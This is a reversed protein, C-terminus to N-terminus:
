RAARERKATGHAARRGAVRHRARERELRRDAFYWLRIPFEDGGEERQERQVPVFLGSSLRDAYTESFFHLPVGHPAPDYTDPAVRRGRGFWPDQTSRASYLHWGDRRLARHIARMLARHERETFDMNFFMNSYVADVGGAPLQELFALCDAEILTYRPRPGSRVRPRPATLDVGRVRLGQETLYRADRGYGCGLEIVDRVDPEKRLISASWRAFDSERDGFFAPDELYRARWFARQRDRRVHSPAVRTPEGMANALRGKQM